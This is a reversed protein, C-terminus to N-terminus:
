GAALLHTPSGLGLLVLPVGFIPDIDSGSIIGGVKIGPATLTVVAGRLVVPGASTILASTSGSIATAGAAATFTATGAAALVSVGAPSAVLTNSGSSAMWTGVGVAYTANGIAVATAHNGALIVESRNGYVLSYSDATGGVFGTAPTTNINIDRVAGNTPLGDKPGSFTEVSKGLSTTNRTKSSQSITDGANLVLASNAGLSFNAVDKLVISQASFVVSKSAKLLIDTDSQVTVGPESATGSPMTTGAQGTGRIYVTGSTSQLDIGRGERDSGEARLRIRGRADIRVSEGGPTAGSAIRLGSAFNM